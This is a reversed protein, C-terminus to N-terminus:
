VPAILVMWSERSKRLNWSKIDRVWVKLFTTMSLYNGQRLSKSSVSLLLPYSWVAVHLCFCCAWVFIESGCPSMGALSSFRYLARFSHRNIALRFKAPSQSAWVSMLAAGSIQAEERSHLLNHAALHVGWRNGMWWSSSTPRSEGRMRETEATGVGALCWTGSNISGEFILPCLLARSHLLCPWPIGTSWKVSKMKHSGWM